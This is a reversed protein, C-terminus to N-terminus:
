TGEKECGRERMVGGRRGGGRRRNREGLREEEGEGDNCGRRGEVCVCVCVM